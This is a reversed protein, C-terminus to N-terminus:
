YAATMGVAGRLGMIPVQLLIGVFFSVFNMCVTVLLSKLWAFSTIVRVAPWEILLGVPIVWWAKALIGPEFLLSQWVADALLTPALGTLVMCAIFLGNMM